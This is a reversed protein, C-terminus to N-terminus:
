ALTSIHCGIQFQINSVFAAPIKVSTARLNIQLKFFKFIKKYILHHSFSLFCNINVGTKKKFLYINKIKM